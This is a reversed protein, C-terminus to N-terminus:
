FHQSYWHAMHVESQTLLLQIILRHVIRVGAVDAAIEALAYEDGLSESEFYELIYSITTVSV